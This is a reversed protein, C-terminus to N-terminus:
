NASFRPWGSDRSSRAEHWAIQDLDVRVWVCPEGTDDTQLEFHRARVRGCLKEPRGTQSSNVVCTMTDGVGPVPRGRWDLYVAQGASQNQANWVEVFVGSTMAEMLHTQM